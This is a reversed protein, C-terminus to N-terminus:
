QGAGLRITNLISRPFSANLMVFVAGSRIFNLAQWRKPERALNIRVWARGKKPFLGPTRRAALAASFALSRPVRVLVGCDTLASVFRRPPTTTSRASSSIREFLSGRFGAQYEFRGKMTAVCGGEEAGVLVRGCYVSAARDERGPARSRDANLGLERHDGDVKPRSRVEFLRTKGHGRSCRSDKAIGETDSSTTWNLTM